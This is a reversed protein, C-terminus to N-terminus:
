ALLGRQTRQVNGLLGGAFNGYASIATRMTQVAMKQRTEAQRLATSARGLDAETLSSGAAELREASALATASQRELRKSVGGWYQLRETLYPVDVRTINDLAAIAAAVSSLDLAAGSNYGAQAVAGVFGTTGGNTDTVVNLTNQAPANTFSWASGISNLIGFSQHIATHPIVPTFFSDQETDLLTRETASITPDIARLAAQRARDRQELITDGRTADLDIAQRVFDLSQALAQNGVADSRIRAARAWAAGDDKVSSVRQGTALQRSMTDMTARAKSATRQALALSSSMSGIM